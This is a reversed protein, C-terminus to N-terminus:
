AVRGAPGSPCAESAITPPDAKPRSPVPMAKRSAAAGCPSSPSTRGPIPVLV